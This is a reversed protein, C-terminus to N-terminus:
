GRRTGRYHFLLAIGRGVRQAVGTQLPIVNYTVALCGCVVTYYPASLIRYAHRIVLTVICYLVICYLVIGLWISLQLVLGQRNDAIYQWTSRYIAM